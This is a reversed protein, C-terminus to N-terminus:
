AAPKSCCGLVIEVVTGAAVRGSGAGVATVAVRGAGVATVAVRGATVAVGGATEAMLSVSDFDLVRSSGTFTNLSIGIM